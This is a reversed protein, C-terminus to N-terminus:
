KFAKRGYMTTFGGIYNTYILKVNSYYTGYFCLELHLFKLFQSFQNPILIKSSNLFQNELTIILNYLNCYKVYYMVILLKINLIYIYM